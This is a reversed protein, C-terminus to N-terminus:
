FLVEKKRQELQEMVRLRQAESMSAWATIEGITRACGECLSTAPNIRCIGTCPTTIV